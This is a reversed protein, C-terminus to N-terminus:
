QNNYMCIGPRFIFIFYNAPLMPSICCQQSTGMDSFFFFLLRISMRKKQYRFESGTNLVTKIEGPIMNWDRMENFYFSEFQKNNVTNFAIHMHPQGQIIVVIILDLFPKTLYSPVM